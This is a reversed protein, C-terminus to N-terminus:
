DFHLWCFFEISTINFVFGSIFSNVGTINQKQNILVWNLIELKNIRPLNNKTRKHMKQFTWWLFSCNIIKRLFFRESVNQDRTSLVSSHTLRVFSKVGNSCMKPSEACFGTFGLLTRLVFVFKDPSILLFFFCFILYFACKPFTASLIDKSSKKCSRDIFFFYFYIFM